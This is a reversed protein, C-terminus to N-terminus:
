VVEMTRRNEPRRWGHLAWRWVLRGQVLALSRMSCNRFRCEGYLVRMADAWDGHDTLEKAYQLLLLNEYQLSSALLRRPVAATGLLRRLTRVGEPFPPRAPLADGAAVENRYVALVEPICGARGSLALRLWTDTDESRQIGLPFGGVAELGSKRVMVSSSTIGRGGGQVAFAFYDELVRPAAFPCVFWPRSDAFSMINTFVVVLAADLAVFRAAGELFGPLWEDDADLFAVWESVSSAVGRNRAASVGANGQVILRIRPDSLGRVVEGGGDTSGDDVVILEFHQHTQALVSRIARQIYRRKNFLPIVVSIKM